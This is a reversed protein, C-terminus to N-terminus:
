GRRWFCAAAWERGLSRWVSMWVMSLSVRTVRGERGGVGEEKAEGGAGDAGNGGEADDETAEVEGVAVDEAGAGAGRKRTQVMRPRM